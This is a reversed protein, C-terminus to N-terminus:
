LFQNVFCCKFVTCIIVLVEVGDGQLVFNNFKVFRDIYTFINKNKRNKDYM